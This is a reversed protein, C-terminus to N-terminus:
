PAIIVMLLQLDEALVQLQPGSLRVREIFEQTGQEQLICSDAGWEEQDVVARTM